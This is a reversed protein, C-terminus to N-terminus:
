AAAPADVPTVPADPNAPEASPEVPADAPKVPEPEKAPAPQEIKTLNSSLKIFGNAVMEFFVKIYADSIIHNHTFDVEITVLTDGVKEALIEKTVM